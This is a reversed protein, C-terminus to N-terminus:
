LITAGSGAQQSRCIGPADGHTDPTTIRSLTPASGSLIKEQSHAGALAIAPACIM